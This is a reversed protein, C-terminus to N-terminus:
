ILEVSNLTLKHMSQGDTYWFYMTPTERAQRTAPSANEILLYWGRTAVIDSVTFGAANNIAVRQSASLTIGTRIVGFNLAQTITGALSEEILANGADNYPVNGVTTLLTLLDLQFQNNMWIQNVYSDIWLFDGSVSGPYLFVFQDNATAYAGYFNYGNSILNQAKTKDTVTATLGDQSIFAGTQRGNTADFNLSAAYGCLFAALGTNDPDYLMATGGISQDALLAGMSTAADSSATPAADTDWCSYLYRKNQDGNWEAFLMKNDNGEGSDPDFLTFFSAFNQTQDTVADMFEGPQMADVGQSLLAGTASTLLLPAALTGTAYTISSAGGTIGSTIVLGGSVSDYSVDVDTSELTLTTSAATQGINVIYTGTLGEGTGFATVVTGATVGTGTVTQGVSVTGSAVATVTMTGYTATIATSAVVQSISVAYVGVGGTTGSFQEVVQTGATVGTGTIVSGIELTGSSVATVTLVNDVISGTVSATESAIDGTVEAATVPTTNLATELLAAIASYSTASSLDISSAVRSYGDVTVTLSGTLAQFTALPTSSIDGGRLWAAVDTNTYRTILLAGPKRSSNDYGKFYIVAKAYEESSPGFYASVVDASGFSYVNGAPLQSSKTLMLGNLDLGNGSASLVNPLVKVIESADITAM